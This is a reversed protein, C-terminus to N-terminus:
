TSLAVSSTTHIAALIVDLQMKALPKPSTEGFQAEQVGILWQLLGDPKEWAPDKAKEKREAVVPKFFEEAQRFRNQLCRVEPLRAAKFRRLWPKLQGVAYAAGMVDLTYNVAHEIYDESRSMDPGFFISGSVKAIIRVLKPHFHFETWDSCDPLEVAMADRVEKGLKESLRETPYIAVKPVSSKTLTM